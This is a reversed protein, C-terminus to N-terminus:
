RRNERNLSAVCEEVYDHYMRANEEAIDIDYEDDFDEYPDSYVHIEEDCHAGCFPCIYYLVEADKGNIEVMEEDSKAFTADFAGGCQDCVTIYKRAYDKNISYEAYRSDGDASTTMVKEINVGQKRLDFIRGSLRTIHLKEFAEFSTIKGHKFMYELVANNQTVKSMINRETSYQM